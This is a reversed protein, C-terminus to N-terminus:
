WIELQDKSFSHIHTKNKKQLLCSMQIQINYQFVHKKMDIQRQYVGADNNIFIIKKERLVIHLKTKVFMSFLGTFYM